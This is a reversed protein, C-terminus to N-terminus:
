LWYYLHINKRLCPTYLYELLFEHQISKDTTCLHVQNLVAAHCLRSSDRAFWHRPLFTLDRTSVSHPQMMAVQLQQVCFVQIDEAHQHVNLGCQKVISCVDATNYYLCFHRWYLGKVYLSSFRSTESRESRHVVCLTTLWDILWDIM